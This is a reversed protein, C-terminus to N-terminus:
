IYPYLNLRDAALVSVFVCITEIDVARTGPLGAHVLVFDVSCVRDLAVWKKRIPLSGSRTEGRLQMLWQCAMM